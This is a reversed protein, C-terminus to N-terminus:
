NNLPSILRIPGPCGKWITRAANKQATELWANESPCRCPNDAQTSQVRRPTDQLVRFARRLLGRKRTRRSGGRLTDKGRKEDPVGFVAADRVKPGSRRKKGRGISSRERGPEDRRPNERLQLTEHRSPYILATKVSPVSKADLLTTVNPM